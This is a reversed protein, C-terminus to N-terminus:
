LVHNVRKTVNEKSHVISKRYCELHTLVVQLTCNMSFAASKSAKGQNFATSHYAFSEDTLEFAFAGLEAKRWGKLHPSIAAAMLLHRLNVMFTTLIIGWAHVGAAILGVGILQSSGAYVLLSMLVTNLTSLGVKSALVGYAFGIPLYGLVFPM